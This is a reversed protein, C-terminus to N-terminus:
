SPSAVLEVHAGGSKALRVPLRLWTRYPECVAGEASADVDAACVVMDARAIIEAEIPGDDFREISLSLVVREMAGGAADVRQETGAPVILDGRRSVEVSVVIPSATAIKKGQPARLEFGITARPTAPALAADDKARFLTTFWAADGGMAPAHVSDIRGLRPTPASTIEITARTAGDVSLRVLQHANTDAVIWGRRAADWAIGAPEHFDAALSRVEGTSRDVRRLKHNYTDAVVVRGDGDCAIGVCHQLLAEERPGDRDGFDFLGTGVVTRVIRRDLDLERVASTESDAVYLMRGVQCLGSPQSFTAAEFAGDVISEAGNGALAAITRAALDVVAIQHSGAMAVYLLEGDLLLDWPSRLATALADTTVSLPLPQAGLEGIGAITTVTGAALDIRAITHARADAVFLETRSRWAIGQPDDFSAQDLAGDVQGAVGTGIAHIVRGDADTVLVRHHGSDAIALLGSPGVAVKGPYSLPGDDRPPPTHVAFPAKALTGKKRAAALEDDVFRALVDLEAEGPAVAAITGDPRVVVLTPWSRVAFASWTRMDRDVIVPHTVDYRRMAQEIRAADKEGEFKASHVGIVVVPEEAFREEIRRLVPIVHMCNVCCYTWFDLIVIQGRLERLTLPRQSRLWTLDPDFEPAHVTPM